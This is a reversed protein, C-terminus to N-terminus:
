MRGAWVFQEHFQETINRGISHDFIGYIASGSGSMGSYIAGVEYIKNKIEAL